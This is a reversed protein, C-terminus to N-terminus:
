AAGSGFLVVAITKFLIKSDEFLSLHDIYHSDLRVRESYPLKSRGSVQWLGTIGPRVSLLKEGHERYMALESPLIDRPGVWSMEGRIVNVVQALEDLSTKRLLRGFRTIRPDNRIKYTAEYELRVEPHTALLNQLVQEADVVMTRFKYKYFLTHSRGLRRVRILAPGHSDLKILLVIIMSVTLIAPLAVITLTLDVVRKFHCRYFGIAAVRASLTDIQTNM